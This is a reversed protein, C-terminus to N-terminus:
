RFFSKILLILLKGTLVNAMRLPATLKPLAKNCIMKVHKDFSSESDILIGTLKVSDEEWLTADDVLVFM